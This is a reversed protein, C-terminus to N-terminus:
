IEEGSYRLEMIGWIALAVALLAAVWSLITKRRLKKYHNQLIGMVRREEDEPDPEMPATMERLLKQCAPCHATHEEIQSVSAESALGDAYLPLLDRIIDCEM